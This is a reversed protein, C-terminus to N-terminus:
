SSRVERSIPLGVIKCTTDWLLKAKEEDYSEISLRKERKKEFYRGTSGEVEPSSALFLTTQAGSKASIMLARTLFTPLRWIRTAVAGPHVCNVTVGSGQVRRALEYTFMVLALKSNSYASMLVGSKGRTIQNLDIRGGYHSVSSVNIIRSPSSTRILGLLRNTLLFPALYNVALTPEFGDITTGGALSFTGANNVLVHLADYRELVEDALNRVQALSSLDCLLLELDSNGTRRIIESKAAEGRERNRCSMVVRAGMRSLGIATEKGIGSSAGTVLCTKGELV